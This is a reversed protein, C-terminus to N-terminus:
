LWLNRICVSTRGEWWRWPTQQSVAAGLFTLLSVWLTEGVHSGLRSNFLFLVLPCTLTSLFLIRPRLRGPLVAPLQPHQSRFSSTRELLFSCVLSAHPVQHDDRWVCVLLVIYVSLYYKPICIYMNLFVYICVNICTIVILLLLPTYPLAQLSSIPAPFLSQNERLQQAM